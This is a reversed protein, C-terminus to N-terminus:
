TDGGRTKKTSTHDKALIWNTPKPAPEEKLVKGSGDYTKLTPNLRSNAFDEPVDVPEDRTILLAKGESTKIEPVRLTKMPGLYVIKITKDSM